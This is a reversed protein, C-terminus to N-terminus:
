LISEEQFGQCSPYFYIHSALETHLSVVTSELNVSIPNDPSKAQSVSQYTWYLFICKMRVEKKFLFLVCLRSNQKRKSIYKYIRSPWWQLIYFRRLLKDSVM